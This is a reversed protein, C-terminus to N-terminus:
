IGDELDALRGKLAEVEAELAEIKGEFEERIKAEAERIYDEPTTHDEMTGDARLIIM